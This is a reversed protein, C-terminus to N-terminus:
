ERLFLVGEAEDIHYRGEQDIHGYISQFYIDCHVTGYVKSIMVHSQYAGPDADDDDDIWSHIEANLDVLTDLTQYNIHLQGQKLVVTSDGVMPRIVGNERFVYILDYDSAAISIPVQSERNFYRQENSETPIIQLGLHDSIISLNSLDQPITEDVLPAPEQLWDNIFAMDSRDDLYSLQNYIDQFQDSDIDNGRGILGAASMMEYLRNQQSRLTCGFMSWSGGLLGFLVVLSLSIPLWKLSRWRLVGYITIMLIIWSTIMALVYREETVGYDGIRRHLSVVLLIAPVILIVFFSRIFWRVYGLQSFRPNLYNMLFTFVGIISFWLSLNGIWGRPLVGDMLVKIGYAYLIIMYITAIPILIYQSFVLFASLPPEVEDDYDLTPFKSLFYWSHFIGFLSVALYGVVRGDLEVGFLKDLALLALLMAVFLVGSFFVSEMFRVFTKRNYEWFDGDSGKSLFPIYAIVLHLFVAIGLLLYPLRFLRTTVLDFDIPLWNYGVMGLLAIAGCGIWELRAQNYAESLLRSIIAGLFMYYGVILLKIFPVMESGTDADYAILIIASITYVVALISAVAFREFTQALDVGRLYSWM